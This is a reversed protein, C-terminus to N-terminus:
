RKWSLMKMVMLAFIVMTLGIWWPWNSEREKEQLKESTEKQLSQEQVLQQQRAKFQSDLLLSHYRDAGQYRIFAEDALIAGDVDIRVGGKLWWLAEYEATHETSQKHMEGEGELRELQLQQAYNTQESQKAFRKFKTATCSAVAGM